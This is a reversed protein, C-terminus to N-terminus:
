RPLSALVPEGRPKQVSRGARGVKMALALATMNRSCDMPCDVMTASHSPGVPGPSNRCALGASPTGALAVGATLKNGLSDDTVGLPRLINAGKRGYAGETGASLEQPM